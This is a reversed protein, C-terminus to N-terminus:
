AVPKRGQALASHDDELAGICFSLGGFPVLGLHGKEKPAVEGVENTASLTGRVQM